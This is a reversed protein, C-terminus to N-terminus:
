RSRFAKLITSSVWFCNVRNEPSLSFSSSAGAAPDLLLLITMLCYTGGPPLYLLDGLVAVAALEYGDGTECVEEGGFRGLLENM